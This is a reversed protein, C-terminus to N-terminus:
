YSCTPVIFLAIGNFLILAAFIVSHTVGWFALYRATGGRTGLLEERWGEHDTSRHRRWERSSVWLAALAALLAVVTVILATVWTGGVSPAFLPRSRPYCSHAVVAYTAVEQISWAAGPALMGFWLAAYPLRADRTTPSM